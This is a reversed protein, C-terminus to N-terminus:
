KTGMIKFIYPGVPFFPFQSVDDQFIPCNAFKCKTKKENNISSIEVLM